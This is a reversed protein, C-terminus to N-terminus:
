PYPPTDPHPQTLIPLYEIYGGITLDDNRDYIMSNIIGIDTTNWYNNIAIMSSDNDLLRLVIRDTNLFSNYEIVMDETTTFQTFIESTGYLVNNRLYREFSISSAVEIRTNQFINQEVYSTGSYSKLYIYYSNSENTFINREISLDYQGYPNILFEGDSHIESDRITIAGPGQIGANSRNESFHVFQFIVSPELTQTTQFDIRSVNNFFIKSSESGTANINGWVYFDPNGTSGGNVVVGPEITLTAGEAIQVISTIKYPSGALDWITDADIIGGVETFFQNFDTWYLNGSDYDYVGDGDTDAVIRCKTEDIATLKAKTNNAGVMLLIGSSPWEDGDYIVFSEETSVTVYGYDPHYFTGFIEVEIYGAYEYINLSYNKAWYVKQTTKDELLGEITCLIPSDSYDISIEIEGDVTM